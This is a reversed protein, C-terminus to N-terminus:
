IIMLQKRIYGNLFADCRFTGKQWTYATCAGLSNYSPCVQIAPFTM